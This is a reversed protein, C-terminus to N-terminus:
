TEQRKGSVFSFTSYFMQKLHDKKYEPGVDIDERLHISKESYKGDQRQLREEGNTNLCIKIESLGRKLWLGKTM